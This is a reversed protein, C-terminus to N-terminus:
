WSIEVKNKQLAPCKFTPKLVCDLILQAANHGIAESLGVYSTTLRPNIEIVYIKDAKTDIVVDVGLYGKADPLMNAIKIALTEFRQWYQPLANMTIGELKFTQNEQIIHQQNASLLWAKGANCLMSFSAHIGTQFPQLLYNLYRNDDKLWTDLLSLDDFIRIGDCCAGDEPKAVWVTHADILQQNKQNRAGIWEDGAIVPLTFINASHLAEACLSKSTGILTADYGCGVFKVSKENEYCRESLSLLVSDSEPAILWVIDVEELLQNFVIDFQGAEVRRSDSVLHSANLRFDNSTVIEYRNLEAIDKLLADRMMLGEQALSIPLPADSLGGGTIFECVYLKLLSM